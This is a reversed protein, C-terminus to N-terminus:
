ATKQMFTEAIWLDEPFTVKINRPDGELVAVREGLREVLTADDTADVNERAAAEYAARIVKVRFAQPTQIQWLRDRPLTQCVRGDESVIKITDRARLGVAVAGEKWAVEICQDILDPRVLPRAGDHIVVVGCDEDLRSLGRRVSDQRRPGGTQLVYHRKSLDEDARILAECRAMEAEAVVLIVNEVNRAAAFGRLTHIILPKDQLPLFVKPITKGMRSGEGAAVIVANVRM